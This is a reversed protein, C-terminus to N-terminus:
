EDKTSRAKTFQVAPREQISVGDVAEGAELAALLKSKDVKATYKLYDDPVATVMDSALEEGRYCLIRKLTRKTTGWLSVVKEARQIAEIWYNARDIKNELTKRKTELMRKAEAVAMLEFRNNMIYKHFEKVKDDAAGEALELEKELAPTIEGGNADLERDLDELWEALELIRM